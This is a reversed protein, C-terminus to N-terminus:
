GCLPAHSASACLVQDVDCYADDNSHVNSEGPYSWCDHVNDLDSNRCTSRPCRYLAAVYKSLDKNAWYGHKPAPLSRGGFCDAHAPCSLCESGTWYYNV